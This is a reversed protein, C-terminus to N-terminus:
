ALLALLAGGIPSRSHFHFRSPHRATRALVAIPFLPVSVQILGKRAKKTEAKHPSPGTGTTAAGRTAGPAPSPSPSSTAGSAATATATAVTPPASMEEPVFCTLHSVDIHSTQVLYRRGNNNVKYKDVGEKKASVADVLGLRCAMLAMDRVLARHEKKAITEVTKGGKNGLLALILGRYDAETFRSELDAEESSTSRRRVLHDIAREIDSGVYHLVRTADERDFGLATLQRLAEPDVLIQKSSQKKLGHSVDYEVCMGRALMDCDRVWSNESSPYGVWKVFWWVGDKREEKDLIKEVDFLKDEEAEGERRKVRRPM